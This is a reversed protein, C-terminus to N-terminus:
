PNTTIPAPGATPDLTSSLARLSEALRALAERATTAATDSREIFPRAEQLGAPTLDIGLASRIDRLNSMLPDLQQRADQYRRQIEAFQETVERQRDASRARIDENRIESLRVDWTNFYERGQKEMQNTQERVAGVTNELDAVATRYREFASRLERDPQASLAQLASTAESLQRQALEVQSAAETIADSTAAAKEYGRTACGTPALLLGAAALTALTVHKFSMSTMPIMNKWLNFPLDPHDRGAVIASVTVQELGPENM